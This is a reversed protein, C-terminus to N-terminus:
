MGFMNGFGWDFGISLGGPLSMGSGAQNLNSENNLSTQSTTGGSLARTTGFGFSGTNYSALNGGSRSESLVNNTTNSRNTQFLSNNSSSRNILSSNSEAGNGGIGTGGMLNAMAMSMCGCDMSAWNINSANNLMTWANSGGSSLLVDGGTNRSGYNNGTNSTQFVRNNVTSNNNQVTTNSNNQSNFVRNDSGFGNGLVQAGSQAPTMAAMGMGGGMSAFNANAQNNIGVASNASGSLIAVGSGSLGGTNDSAVNNGTNARETVSNNFQANNTQFLSNTNSSNNFISNSSEAGNGSLSGGANTSGNSTCGCGGSAQNINAQNNIRVQQASDGSSLLVSGGTNGNAVNGGTNSSSTVNNSVNATNNQVTSNSSTSTNTVRNDSGFGNGAIVSSDAFATTAFSSIFLSGIAVVSAIKTNINM